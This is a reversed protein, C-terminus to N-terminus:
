RWIQQLLEQAAGAVAMLRPWLGSVGSPLQSGAFVAPPM